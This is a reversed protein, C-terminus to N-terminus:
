DASDALYKEGVAETSKRRVGLIHCVAGTLEAQNLTYFHFENVGHEALGRCMEAAVTAAVLARIEPADDLGEFLQGMWAPMTTGCRSAFSAARGFNTIPLIGPVIPITIGASRARDLFRLYTDPEFFFQTIARCAGADVKRKLNDLDAANSVSEPHTEPYAAVSVDLDHRARIAAVLEAANSFGQPHPLFQKQGAPPDGRLAVIRKIGAAVYDDVVSLVEARSAGVCTLHAATPIGTNAAIDGVCRLTRERTTGGAGYTVSAFRPNLLALQNICDRFADERGTAPPFFELSIEPKAKLPTFPPWPRRQLRQAAEAANALLRGAADTDSTSDNANM